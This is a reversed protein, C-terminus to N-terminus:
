ELPFGFGSKKWKLHYIPNYEVNIKCVEKRMLCMLQETILENIVEEYNYKPSVRINYLM